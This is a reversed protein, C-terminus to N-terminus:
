FRRSWTVSFGGNGFRGTGASPQRWPFRNGSYNAYQFTVNSPYGRSYGFVYTFDPDWPQQRAPDPYAYLNASLFWGGLAHLHAGAGLRHKGSSFRNSSVDYYRPILDYSLRPYLGATRDVRLLQRLADPLPPAYALSVVGRDIRTVPQGTEPALRNADYNAYSLSAGRPWALEYGVGYTFDPDWPAQLRSVLYRHFTVSAWLRRFAHGTVAVRLSTNTGPSGGEAGFAAPNSPTFPMEVGGGITLGLGFRGAIGPARTTDAQVFLATVIALALM